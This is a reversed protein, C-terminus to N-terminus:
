KVVVKETTGDGSVIYIGAPLHQIDDRNDTQLRLVGDLSYITFSGNTAVTSDISASETGPIPYIRNKFKSWGDAKKYLEVSQGPVFIDLDMPTSLDYTLFSGYSGDIAPPTVAECTIKKLDDCEIFTLASISTVSPPISVEEVSSGIFAENGIHIIGDPIKVFGKGPGSYLITKDKNLLMGGESSYNPNESSIIIRELNECNAFAWVEIISVSAPLTISALSNCGRFAGFKIETIGEPIVVFPLSFCCEFVSRNIVKLSSPVKIYKLNECHYFADDGIVSVSEPLILQELGYCQGFAFQGIYKLNKSFRIELLSKCENFAFEEIREVSDSFDVKEINQAYAFSFPAITRVGDPITVTKKGGPAILLTTVDKDYVVGDVSTFYPNEPDINIARLKPHFYNYVNSIGASEWTFDTITKPLSITELKSCPWFKDLLTVTYVQGGPFTVTEPIVVDIIEGIYDSNRDVSVTKEEQSLIKFLFEGQAFTDAVAASAMCSSGLALGAIIINRIINM